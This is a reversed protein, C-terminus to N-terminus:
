GEVFVSDPTVWIGSSLLRVEMQGRRTRADMVRYKDAGCSCYVGYNGGNLNRSIAHRIDKTTTLVTQPAVSGPANVLARAREGNNLFM